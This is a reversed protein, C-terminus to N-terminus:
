LGRRIADQIMPISNDIFEQSPLNQLTIVNGTSYALLVIRRNKDNM